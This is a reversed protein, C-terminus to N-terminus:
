PKIQRRVRATVIAVVLGVLIMVIGIWPGNAKLFNVASANSTISIILGLVVVLMSGSAVMWRNQLTAAQDALAVSIAHPVSQTVDGSKQTLADVETTLNELSDHIAAYENSVIKFQQDITKLRQGLAHWPFGSKMLNDLLEEPGGELVSDEWETDRMGVPAGKRQSRIYGTQGQYDGEYYKLPLEGDELKLITLRFLKEKFLFRREESSTNTITWNLTGNYGADVQTTPAVIGERSLDTTPSIFAHLACNPFIKQVAGPSFDITELATVAVSQGPSVRIGKKTRGLEYAKNATLFEGESGLRLVYSNPRLCNVDGDIIVAGILKRIDADNLIKAM